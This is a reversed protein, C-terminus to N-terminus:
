AAADVPGNADAPGDAIVAGESSSQPPADEDEYEEVM